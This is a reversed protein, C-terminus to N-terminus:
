PYASYLRSNDIWNGCGLRGSPLSRESIYQFKSLILYISSSFFVGHPYQCSRRLFLFSGPLTRVSYNESDKGSYCISQFTVIFTICSIYAFFGFPPIDLAAPELIIRLDIRRPKFPDFAALYCLIIRRYFIRFILDNFLSHRDKELVENNIPKQM